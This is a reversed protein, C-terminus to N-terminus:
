DEEMVTSPRIEMTKRSRRSNTETTTEEESQGRMTRTRSITTTRQGVVKGTRMTTRRTRTSPHPTTRPPKRLQRTVSRTSSSLPPPPNLDFHRPRHKRPPFPRPLLLFSTVWPDAHNIYTIYTHATNHPLSPYLPRKQSSSQSVLENTAEGGENGERTGEEGM